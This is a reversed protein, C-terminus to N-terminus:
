TGRKGAGRERMFQFASWSGGGLMVMMALLMGTSYADWYARAIGPRNANNVEFIAGGHLGSVIGNVQGSEYYPQIMPAAQASSIVVLPFPTVARLPTTQEIWARATELSDTIVILAAFQSISTIGQLPSGQREWALNLSVDLPMIRSPNITFARIGTVSGPLFGLNVYNTEYLYHPKNFPGSDDIHGTIFREALVPGAENTSIFVWRSQRLIDMQDFMPAAAAEMEAARSPQYDVAVLVPAAPPVNQSVQLAGSVEEPLGTPVSFFQRNLSTMIFVAPFVLMSIAWRLSRSKRLPQFSSIPVPETEAALIQELLAAHSQQEPTAQLKISFAKPKGSPIFGPVAPLVGQLGSLAGRTELSQDCAYTAAKAVCSDVPRMAKVWSPLDTPVLGEEAEAPSTSPAPESVSTLWDPMETFLGDVSGDQFAEPTFASPGPAEASVSPAEEAPPQPPTSRFTALWGSAEPPATGPEEVAPEAYISSQPAAAKLWDPIDGFVAEDSSDLQSELTVAPKPAPQSPAPTSAPPPQAAPVDSLWAPVEAEQKSGLGGTERLWLPMTGRRPPAQEQSPFGKTWDQDTQGETAPLSEFGQLWSPMDEASLSDEPAPASPAGAERRPSDLQPPEEGFSFPGVKEDSSIKKLWDPTESDPPAESAQEPLFSSVRAEPTDGWGPSDLPPFQVRQPIEEGSAQQLWEKLEDAESSHSDAQMGTLWTPSEDPLTPKEQPFDGSGGVEVWRVGASDMGPKRTKPAEGTINALWDPVEEEDETRSQSRLGALLDPQSPIPATKAQDQLARAADEEAQSRAKDRAERLWQPLIPELEATVKKTPAEGPKLPVDAGRLPGTLPKLRSQCYQCFEQNAANVEGCVLCKVTDAM